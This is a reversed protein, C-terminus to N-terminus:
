PATVAWSGDGNAENEPGVEIPNLNFSIEAGVEGIPSIGESFTEAKSLHGEYVCLSGPAAKPEAVTGVPSGCETPTTAAAEFHLEEGVTNIYHMKLAVGAALPIPFSVVHESLASKKTEAPGFGWVGTETAKSPLTGGAPWPSGTTGKAGKEGNCAPSKGSASTFESGGEVCGGEGKALAKSTVSQGNSGPSGPTGAGVPGAPGAPGQPGAAGATGAPGAKGKLAKLVSPSIQKTSTILFRKAAYAGGTMAFLLAITAVVTGPTIRRRIASLM